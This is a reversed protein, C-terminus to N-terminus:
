ADVGLVADHVAYADSDDAIALVASTNGMSVVAIQRGDQARAVIGDYVGVGLTRALRAAARMYFGALTSLERHVRMDDALVKGTGSVLAVGEVGDFAWFQELLLKRVEPDEIVAHGTTSDAPSPPAVATTGDEDDDSPLEFPAATTEDAEAAAAEPSDSDGGEVFPTPDVEGEDILRAAEMLLHTSSRTITRRPPPQFLRERFSGRGAAVIKFFALEGRFSGYEVHTIDGHEFWVAGTAFPTEVELRRDRGSVAVMQVYDFLEVEIGRGFFGRRPGLKTVEAVLVDLDVPKPLLLIGPHRGYTRELEETIFASQILVPVSPHHSGLWEVLATGDGGPMKVDCIVADFSQERLLDIAQRATSALAVDIGARRLAREVAFRVNPEDDAVLVRM